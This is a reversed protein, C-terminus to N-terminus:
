PADLRKGMRLCALATGTPLRHLDAREEQFGAQAYFPVANLTAALHLRSLGRSRAAAELADLIFSGIGEGQRHPAVYVAEVEGTTGDLQGFGLLATGEEALLLLRERIVGEYREPALLGSWQAIQEPTYAKACTERIARVHLTCISAADAPTARRLSLM